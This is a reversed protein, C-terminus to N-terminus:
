DISCNFGNLCIVDMCIPMKDFLGYIKDSLLQQGKDSSPLACVNSLGAKYVCLKPSIKM